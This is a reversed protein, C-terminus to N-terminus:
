MYMTVELANFLFPSSVSPSVAASLSGAVRTKGGSRPTVKISFLTWTGSSIKPPFIEGPCVAERSLACAGPSGPARPHRSLLSGRELCSPPRERSGPRGGPLTAARSGPACNGPLCGRATLPRCQRRSLCVASPDRLWRQLSSSFSAFTVFCLGYSELLPHSGAPCGEPLHRRPCQLPPFPCPRWSVSPRALRPRSGQGEERRSGPGM